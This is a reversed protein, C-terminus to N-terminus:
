IIGLGASAYGVISTAIGTGSVVSASFILLLRTGATVPIALGSTIGSVRDGISIIGTLTPTLQVVAGPVPTFANNVAVTRYLQATIQVSTGILSIAADVSFYAALSSITGDRPM